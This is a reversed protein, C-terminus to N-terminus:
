LNPRRKRARLGLILTELQDLDEDDLGSLDLERTASKTSGRSDVSESDRIGALVFLERPEIEVARAIKALTVPTPKVPFRQGRKTEYGIEMYRWTGDGIGARRAAERASIGLEERAQRIRQGVPWQEDTGEVSQDMSRM